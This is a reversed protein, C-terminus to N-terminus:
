TARQILFEMLLPVPRGTAGKQKGTKYATGAIDLHAWRLGEAFKSLFCAATVAGGERGGVNAIDAFNTKLQECYEEDLPLRWARDDAREGAGGLERALEDDNSMLGTLHHGLAIVCAGTLTAVDIVTGPDFRRAYTLADCLIMRGEADTNLIEVTRGSLTTVVDGPRTATGSPMNECAPVLGIVNLKLGLRAAALLVGFVSAAGCMDFKMEDMAAAPKISIGGTDFTVGKGVLAISASSKAAGRYELVLLRAPQESGRTVALMGGMGLKKMRAEDIISATINREDRSLERARQALYEPTCINPPLNGLNRALEIGTAIATGHAVGRQADALEGRGAVGIGLRGLAAPKVDGETKLDLFRYLSDHATEVAYRALYYADTDAVPERSLWSVADKVGTKALLSIAAELAKRYQRRGFSKEAGCGALLVRPLKLGAPNSLLLVDGTKGSIDGRRTVRGIAGGCGKDLLRATASLRGGEFVGVIACATRTKQPPGSTAFFEM